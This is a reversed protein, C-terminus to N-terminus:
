VPLQFSCKQLGTFTTGNQPNVTVKFARSGLSKSKLASPTFNLSASLASM